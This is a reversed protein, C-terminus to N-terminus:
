TIDCAGNWVHCSILKRSHTLKSKDLVAGCKHCIDLQRLSRIHGPGKVYM